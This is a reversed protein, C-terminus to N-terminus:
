SSLQIQSSSLVLDPRLKQIRSFSSSLSPVIFASRFDFEFKKLNKMQYIIWDEEPRGFQSTLGKAVLSELHNLSSLRRLGTSISLPLNIDEINLTQLFELRELQNYIQSVVRLQLDNIQSNFFDYTTTTTTTTTPTTATTTTTIFSSPSNKDSELFTSNIPPDILRYNLSFRLYQLKVCVWLPHFFVANTIRSCFIFSVFILEKCNTLVYQLGFDSIFHCCNVNLHQLNEKSSNTLALLDKDDIRTAMVNVHKLQNCDMFLVQFGDGSINRCNSLIITQLNLQCHTALHKLGIDSLSKNGSLNLYNLQPNSKVLCLITEDSLDSDSVNLHVLSNLIEFAQKLYNSYSLHQVHSIDLRELYTLNPLSLSIESSAWPAELEKLYPM